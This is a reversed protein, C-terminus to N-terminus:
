LVPNYPQLSVGNMDLYLNDVVLNEALGVETVVDPYQDTLWRFMKPIGFLATTKTPTSTTITSTAVGPKPVWPTLATPLVFGEVSFAHFAILIVTCASLLVAMTM